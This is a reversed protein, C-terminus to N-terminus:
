PKYYKVEPYNWEGIFKQEESVKDPEYLKDGSDYERYLCYENQNEFAETWLGDCILCGEPLCVERVYNNGVFADNAIYKLNPPAKFTRFSTESFAMSGIVKLSDPLKVKDIDLSLCKFFTKYDIVEVGEPITISELSKNNYFAFCGIAKVSDPINIKVLKSCGRFCSNPIFDINSKFEISRLRSNNRFASDAIDIIDPTIIFQQSNAARILLGRHTLQGNKSLIAKLWPTREFSTGSIHIEKDPIEVNVLSKCEYFAGGDIIEVSDGIYVDTIKGCGSFEKVGIYATPEHIDLKTINQYKGCYDSLLWNYNYLPTIYNDVILTDDKIHVDENEYERRRDLLDDMIFPQGDKILRICLTKDQSSIVSDEKSIGLMKEKMQKRLAKDLASGSKYEVDITKKYRAIGFDGTRIISGKAMVRVVKHLLKIFIIVIINYRLRNLQM